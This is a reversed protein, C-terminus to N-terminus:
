FYYGGGTTSDTSSTGGFGFRFLPNQERVPMKKVGLRCDMEFRKDKDMLTQYVENLMIFVEQKKKNGPFKDPHCKMVMRRFAKKIDMEDAGPEVSMFQYYSIRRRIGQPNEIEIYCKIPKRIM